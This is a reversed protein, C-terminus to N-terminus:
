NCHKILYKILDTSTLMGVLIDGEMVPLSRFGKDIIIEAAVKISCEAQVTVVDKIMVQEISFMNYVTTNIIDDNDGGTEALSIRILDTYSLIGVLKGGSIVPLHKIKFEKFLKEANTLSDTLNLKVIEKAMISSVQIDKIM